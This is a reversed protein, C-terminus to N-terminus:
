SPLENQNETIPSQANVIDLVERVLDKNGERIHYNDKEWAYHPYEYGIVQRLFDNKGMGIQSSVLTLFYGARTTDEAQGRKVVEEKLL